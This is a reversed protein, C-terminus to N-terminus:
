FTIYRLFRPATQDPDESNAMGHAERIERLSSFILHETKKLVIVISKKMQWM